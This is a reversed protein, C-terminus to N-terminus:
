KAEKARQREEKAAQKEAKSRNKLEQRAAENAKEEAEIKEYEEISKASTKSVNSKLFKGFDKGIDRHGDGMLNVFDGIRGGKGDLEVSAFPKDRDIAFLFFEGSIDGDRDITNVKFVIRYKSKTDDPGFLYVNKKGMSEEVALLFLKRLSNKAAEWDEKGMLDSNDQESLGRITASSYDIGFAVRDGNKLVSFGDPNGKYNRELLYHPQGKGQAFSEANISLIIAFLVTAIFIIRKM